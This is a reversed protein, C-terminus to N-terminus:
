YLIIAIIQNADGNYNNVQPIYAAITGVVLFIGLGIDVGRPDPGCNPDTM